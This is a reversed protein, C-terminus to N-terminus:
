GKLGLIGSATQGTRLFNRPYTRRRGWLHKSAIAKADRKRVSYLTCHVYIRMFSLIYRFFLWPFYVPINPKWLSRIEHSWEHSDKWWSMSTMEHVANFKQKSTTVFLRTIGIQHSVFQPPPKRLYAKDGGRRVYFSHKLAVDFM